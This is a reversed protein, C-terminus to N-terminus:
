TFGSEPMPYNMAKGYDNNADLNYIYITPKTPDFLAIRYKKNAKSYRGSTM